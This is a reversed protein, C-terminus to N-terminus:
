VSQTKALQDSKEHNGCKRPWRSSKPTSRRACNGPWRGSFALAWPEGADNILVAADDDFRIYTGDKRRQEKRTRVVVAKVVSGKKVPSDPAAEKVAATIVDGISAVLGCRRGGSSYLHAPARGFQRSRDAMDRMQVMDTAKERTGAFDRRSAHAFPKDSRGLALAEAQITSACGRNTGHRGGECRGEEDHAYYKKAIRVVRRYMRHQVTRVVKVVITKQMKSSTVVGTLKQRKAGRVEPATNGRKSRIM